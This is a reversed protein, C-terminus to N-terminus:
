SHHIVLNVIPRKILAVMEAKTYQKITINKGVYKVYLPVEAINKDSLKM